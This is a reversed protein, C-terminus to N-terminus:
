KRVGPRHNPGLQIAHHPQTRTLFQKVIDPKTMESPYSGNKKVGEFLADTLSKDLFVWRKDQPDELNRSTIYAMILTKIQAATFFQTSTASTKAGTSLAEAILKKTVGSNPKYLEM